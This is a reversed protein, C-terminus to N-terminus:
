CLHLSFLLLNVCMYTYVPQHFECFPQNTKLDYYCIFHTYYGFDEYVSLFFCSDEFMEDCQTKYTQRVFYFLLNHLIDVM